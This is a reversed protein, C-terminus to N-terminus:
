SVEPRGGFEFTGHGPAAPWLITSLGGPTIPNAVSFGRAVPEGSSAAHRDFLRQNDQQRQARPKQQEDAQRLHKLVAWPREPPPRAAGAFAGPLLPWAGGVRGGL